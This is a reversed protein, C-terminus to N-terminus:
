EFHELKYGYFWIMYVFLGIFFFIIFIPFVLGVTTEIGAGRSIAALESYNEHAEPTIAPEEPYITEQTVNTLNTPTEEIEPFGTRDIPTRSSAIPFAGSLTALTAAVLFLLISTVFIPKMIDSKKKGKATKKKPKRKKIKKIQDKNLENVPIHLKISGEYGCDKCYYVGPAGLGTITGTAGTEMSAYNLRPSGCKPCAQVTKEENDKKKDKHVRAKHIKLGKESNFEKGCEECKVM